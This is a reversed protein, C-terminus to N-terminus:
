RIKQWHTSNKYRGARRINIKADSTKFRKTGLDKNRSMEVHLDM